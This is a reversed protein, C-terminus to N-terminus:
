YITFNKYIMKFSEVYLINKKIDLYGMRPDALRSTDESSQSLGPPM